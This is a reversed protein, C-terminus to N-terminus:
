VKRAAVLRRATALTDTIVFVKDLRTLTFIRAINPSRVVLVLPTDHASLRRLVGILVGLGTSDIFTLGSMDIIMGAQSAALAGHLDRRADAATSVDVDGSLTVLVVDRVREVRAAYRVQSGAEIM